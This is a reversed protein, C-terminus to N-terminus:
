AFRVVCMAQAVESAGTEPSLNDGPAPRLAASYTRERMPRLLAPITPRGPRYSRLFCPGASLCCVPCGWFEPLSHVGLDDFKASVRLVSALRAAGLAARGCSFRYLLVIHHPRVRLNRRPRQVDRSKSPSGRCSALPGSPTACSETCPQACVLPRWRRVTDRFISWGSSLAM